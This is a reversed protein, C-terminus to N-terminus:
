HGTDISEIQYEFKDCVNGPLLFNRIRNDPAALVDLHSSIISKIHYGKKQIV